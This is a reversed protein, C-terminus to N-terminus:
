KALSEIQSWHFGTRVAEGGAEDDAANRELAQGLRWWELPQNWGDEAETFTVRCKSGLDVSKNGRSSKM